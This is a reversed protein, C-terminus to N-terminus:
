AAPPSIRALVPRVAAWFEEATVEHMPPDRGETAHIHALLDVNYPGRETMHFAFGRAGAKPDFSEVHTWITWGDDEENLGDTRFYKGVLPRDADLTVLQDLEGWEQRLRDQEEMIEKMRRRADEVDSM